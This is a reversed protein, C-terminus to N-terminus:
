RAAPEGDRVAIVQAVDPDRLAGAVAQDITLASVSPDVALAIWGIFIPLIPRYRLQLKM